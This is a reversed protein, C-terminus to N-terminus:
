GKGFVLPLTIKLAYPKGGKKAPEWKPASKIVRIFEGASTAGIFETIRLNEIVGTEGVTFVAVMKGPKELKSMDFHERVYQHFKLVNGGQFKPEIFEGSLYVEDEGGLQAFAPSAVILVLFFLLNKIM